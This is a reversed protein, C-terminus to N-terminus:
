QPPFAEFRSLGDEPLMDWSAKSAVFIHHTLRVDPHDDLSGLRIAVEDGEPWDGGFLSAGCIRCFAKANAGPPRYNAILDHGSTLQFGERPVRAAAIAPGGSQKQCHQCHCFYAVRFPMTLRYRVGGCLCSGLM